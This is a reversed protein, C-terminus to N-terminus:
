LSAVRLRSVLEMGSLSAIKGDLEREAMEPTIFALEDAAAHHAIVPEVESFVALIQARATQREACRFRLLCRWPADKYDAVYGEEGREWFLYKRAKLHKVEDIVDAVVASATPLKGAGRGYFVVDGIADGRVMIGNFVDNVDALLSTKPLIMPAVLGNLRGDGRKTVRGILKIVGDCAEAYKVDDLTVGRIGETHIQDPYVHKGFALSALICIKRCADDGDVDASPNREAYGLKQALALADEFSMHDEIMKTLMFNTTGNLIGAIEYVENAALCQDIPRLIPIGGGVSAEFLFNLNNDRAIALLEDGKAAVLEKNSTVVSKGAQLCAKVYEYAPHLGGMTEVVIRIEGDSVIDEFNKTFRDAYPSDPFERLDLIRRIEIAEGAKHGISPGNKRLVEAVGSGVVGHGLIAVYVMNIGKRECLGSGM